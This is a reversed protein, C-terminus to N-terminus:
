KQEKDILSLKTDLEWFIVHEGIGTSIEAFLYYMDLVNTHPNIESQGKIETIRKM